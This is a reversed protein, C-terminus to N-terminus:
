GAPPNKRGETLPKVTLRNKRSETLLAPRLM